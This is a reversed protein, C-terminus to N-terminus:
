RNRVPKAGVPGASPEAALKSLLLQVKVQIPQPQLVLLYGSAKDFVMQGPGGAGNWSQGAVQGKIKEMLFDATQGKALLARLSYFEVELRASVAKPTTVEFTDEGAIRYTLNPRLTQILAESLPKDQIQLTRKVDGQVGAASLAVWDVVIVTKSKEELYSLIRALPAAEPFNATIPERLKAKARDFRTALLPKGDAQRDPQERAARLRDYFSKLQFHVPGTQRVALDSGEVVATGAGGGERWSEPAVLKRTWDVLQQVAAPDHGALEGIAYKESRLETRRKPPSTVLIQDNDVTYELGRPALLDGLVEGATKGSDKASVPEGLRAGVAAMAGLDFTVRLGTMESFFRVAHLLPMDPVDIEPIRQSLRAAADIPEPEDQEEAGPEPPKKAAHDPRQPKGSTRALPDKPKSIVVPLEDTAALAPPRLDPSEPGPKSVVNIRALQELVVPDMNKTLFRVSGDAMGALMGDPQGSGFGDPGNVYPRQTLGRVTAEGGAGWPGLRQTVGLVAVTNGAGKAIDQPRVTRSFGFMGANEDNPKLDGADKGIGAVGVYHSVPFGAETIRQPVLPNIVAELPRQTVPKNQPGNWSYAFQLEKHWDGHEFYPLMAAIWSLRTAPPLTTGGCAGVPFHGKAQAYVALAGLIRKQNAEDAALGADLWDAHIAEPSDLAASGAVSLDTGWPIRLWVTDEVIEPRGAHLAAQSQKLLAEYRQAAPVTLRGAQPKADLAAIRSDIGTRAASILQELAARVKDAATDGDCVMTLVTAWQGSGRLDLSLGRPLQWLTHWSNRGEPWVDMLAAPAQWGAKRAAALDMLFLIEADPVATKLLRDIARSALQPEKQDALERLLKAPGTLITRDAVIAFPHPWGSKPVQRCIAGPLLPAVEEGAKRLGSADQGEELEILLVSQDQWAALDSTTWTLRRIDRPKLSLVELVRGIAPKWVPGALQVARDLDREVALKSMRLCLVAQAGAPLWRRDLRPSAAEPQPPETAPPATATTEPTTEVTPEIVAQRKGATWVFWTAVALSLGVVPVVVIAFWKWAVAYPAAMAAMEAASPAPPALIPPPVTLSENPTTELASSSVDEAPQSNEKVASADSAVKRKRRAPTAPPLDESIAPAAVTKAKPKWGPPPIVHVM